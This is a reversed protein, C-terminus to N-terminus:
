RGQRNLKACDKCLRKGGTGERRNEIEINNGTHCETNNHYVDVDEKISHWPSVKPM